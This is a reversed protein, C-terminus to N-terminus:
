ECLVPCYAIYEAIEQLEQLNINEFLNKLRNREDEFLITDLTKEDLLASAAFYLVESFNASEYFIKDLDIALKM